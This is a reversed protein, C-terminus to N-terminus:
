PRVGCAWDAERKAHVIGADFIHAFLMHLVERSDKFLMAGDRMITCALSVKADVEVSVVVLPFDVEGYQFVDLLCQYSEVM